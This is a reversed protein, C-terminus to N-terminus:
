GAVQDTDDYRYVVGDRIKRTKRIEGLVETEEDDAGSGDPVVPEPVNRPRHPPDAKNKYQDCRNREKGKRDATAYGM